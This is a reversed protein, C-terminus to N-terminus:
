IKTNKLRQLELLPSLLVFSESSHPLLCKRFKVQEGNRYSHFKTKNNDNGFIKIKVNNLARNAIMLNHGATQHHSM